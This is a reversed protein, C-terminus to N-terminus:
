QQMQIKFCLCDISECEPAQCACDMGGCECGGSNECCAKCAQCTMCKEVSCAQSAPGCVSDLCTKVNPYACCNCAEALAIWCDCCQLSGDERGCPACEVCVGRAVLFQRIVLLIVIVVLYSGIAIVVIVPVSLVPDSAPVEEVADAM